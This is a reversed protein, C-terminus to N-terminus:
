FTAPGDPFMSAPSALPPEAPEPPAAPEPPKLAVPPLAPEPPELPTPPLAPEPADLPAPPLAPEPPAPAPPAAPQVDSDVECAHPLLHLVFTVFLQPWLTAQPLQLPPCTHSLLVHQVGSDFEVAQPLFHPPALTVFLQPWVM